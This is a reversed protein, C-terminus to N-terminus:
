RFWVTVCFLIFLFLAVVFIGGVLLGALMANALLQFAEKYYNERHYLASANVSCIVAQEYNGEAVFANYAKLFLFLATNYSQKNLNEQAQKM